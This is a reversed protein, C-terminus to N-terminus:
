PCVPRVSWGFFRRSFSASVGSSDFYIGWARDLYDHLSSSWYNGNSGPNTLSTADRYGAAPLFLTAGTSIRVIQWGKVDTGAYKTTSGDCWTWTYGTNNRTAILEEIEGKTPMRWSGGWQYSAADDEPDLTTKSDTFGDNGYGSKNCYKTLTHDSGKCWTYSAWNYGTKNERWTLPDQSSYYPVTDGWAFYDGYEEPKSAGVNCTAWKLGSPLGLDVYEHGNYLDLVAEKCGLDPGANWDSVTINDLTLKDRGVMLNVTTFRGSNLPIDQPVDYIFRRGGIDIIIRRIGTQPIQLGTFSVDYGTAATAAQTVRVDSLSGAPIIGGTLYDVMAATRANVSVSNVSPITGWEDRFKLNVNLKAMAHEFTLQVPGNSAKVGEKPYAILLDGVTNIDCYADTFGTLNDPVPYIGLFYHDDVANKWQMKEAPTWATGNFRNIVGDVVRVAPVETVSGTWGYLLIEDGATFSSGNGNYAVKTMQGISAQITISGADTQVIGNEKNCGALALIGATTALIRIKNM